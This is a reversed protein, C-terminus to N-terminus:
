TLSTVVFLNFLVFLFVGWSEQIQIISWRIRFATISILAELIFANELTLFGFFFFFLCFLCFFEEHLHQTVTAPLATRHLGVGEEQAEPFSM